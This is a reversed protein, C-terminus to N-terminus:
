FSSFSTYLREIKLFYSRRLLFIYMTTFKCECKLRILFKVLLLGDVLDHVDTFLIIANM